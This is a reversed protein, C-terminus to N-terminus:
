IVNVKSNNNILVYIKSIKWIITHLYNLVAIIAVVLIVLVVHVVVVFQLNELRLIISDNIEIQKRDCVSLFIIIQFHM